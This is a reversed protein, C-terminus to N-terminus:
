LVNENQKLQNETKKLIFYMSLIFAVSCIGIPLRSIMLTVYWSETTSFTSWSAERDIFETYNICLWYGVMFLTLIVSKQMLAVKRKRLWPALILCVFVPLACIWHLYGLPSSSLDASSIADPAAWLTQTCTCVIIALTMFVWYGMRNKGNAASANYKFSM